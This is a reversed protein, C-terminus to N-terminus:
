GREASRLSDSRRTRSGNVQGTEASGSFRVLDRRYADKDLNSNDLAAEVYGLGATAKGFIPALLSGSGYALHECRSNRIGGGGEGATRWDPDLGLLNYAREWTKQIFLSGRPV